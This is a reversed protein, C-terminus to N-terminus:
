LRLASDIFTPPMNGRLMKLNDSELIDNGAIKLQKSFKVSKRLVTSVSRSGCRFQSYYVYGALLTLACAAFDMHILWCSSVPRASLLVRTGHTLCDLPSSKTSQTFTNPRHLHLHLKAWLRTVCSPWSHALSASGRLIGFYLVRPKM